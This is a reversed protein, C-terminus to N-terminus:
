VAEKISEVIKKIPNGKKNKVKIEILEEKQKMKAPEVRSVIGNSSYEIEKAEGTKIDFYFDKVEGLEKGDDTVLKKQVMSEQKDDEFKIVDKAPLISEAKKVFVTRGIIEKIDQFKFAKAVNPDDSNIFFALLKNNKDVVVDSVQGHQKKGTDNAMVTMGTFDSTRLLLEINTMNM